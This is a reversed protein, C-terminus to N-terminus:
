YSLVGEGNERRIIQIFRSNQGAFGSFLEEFPEADGASAPVEM